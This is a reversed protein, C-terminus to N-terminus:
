RGATRRRWAARAIRLELVAQDYAQGSEELRRLGQARTLADIAGARLAKDYLDLERTIISPVDRMEAYTDSASRLAAWADYLEARVAVREFRVRAAAEESRGTADAREDARRDFLPLAIKLSVGVQWETWSASLDGAAMGAFGTPDIIWDTRGLEVGFTPAPWVQRSLSAHEFRVARLEAEVARVRPDADVLADVDALVPSTADEVPDEVTIAARPDRGLLRALRVRARDLEGRTRAMAARATRLDLEAADVDLQNGTGAGLQKRAGELGLAHLEVLREARALARQGDAVEAVAVAVAQDLDLLAAVRRESAADVQAGAAAGRPRWAGSLDLTWEAGISWGDSDGLEYSATVEPDHRLVRTAPGVRLRAARLEADVVSVEPAHARAEAQATALTVLPEAAHLPSWALLLATACLCGGGRKM